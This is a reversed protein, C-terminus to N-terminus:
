DCSCLRVSGVGVSIRRHLWNCRIDEGNYYDVGHLERKLLDGVLGSTSFRRQSDGVFYLLSDLQGM